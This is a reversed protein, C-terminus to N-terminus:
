CYGVSLTASIVQIGSFRILSAALYVARGSNRDLRSVMRAIYYVGIASLIVPIFDVLALAMTYAM